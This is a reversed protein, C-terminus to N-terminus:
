PCKTGTYGPVRTDREQENIAKEAASVKVIGLKALAMARESSYSSNFAMIVGALGNIYNQYAMPSHQIDIMEILRGGNVEFGEYQRAFEVDGLEHKRHALYAHMAEHYLVVLIYEKSANALTTANLGINYTLNSKISHHDFM